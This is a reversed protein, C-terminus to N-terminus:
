NKHCVGSPCLSRISCKKGRLDSVLIGSETIISLNIFDTSSVSGPDAYFSYFRLRQRRGMHERLPRGKKGGDMNNRNFVFCIWVDAWCCQVLCACGSKEKKEGGEKKKVKRYGLPSKARRKLLMQVSKWVLEKKSFGTSVCWTKDSLFFKNKALFFPCYKLQYAKVNAYLRERIKQETFLRNSTKTM